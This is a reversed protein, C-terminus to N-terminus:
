VLLYDKWFRMHISSSFWLNKLSFKLDCSKNSYSPRYAKYYHLSSNDQFENCISTVDWNELSQITILVKYFMNQAFKKSCIGLLKTKKKLPVYIHKETDLAHICCSNTPNNEKHPFSPNHGVTTYWSFLPILYHSPATSNCFSHHIIRISYFRIFHLVSKMKTFTDTKANVQPKGYIDSVTKQWNWCNQM